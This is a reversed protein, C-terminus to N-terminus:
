IPLSPENNKIDSTYELTALKAKKLQKEILKQKKSKYKEWKSLKEKANTIHRLPEWTNDEHTWGSWKVLFHQEGEIDEEDLIDEV